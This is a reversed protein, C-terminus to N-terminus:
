EGTRSLLEDIARSLNQRQAPELTPNTQVTERAHELRRRATIVDGQDLALQGAFLLLPPYDPDLALGREYADGAADWEMRQALITGLGAWAIATPHVDIAERFSREAFDVDGRESAAVGIQARLHGSDRGFWRLRDLALEARHLDVAAGEVKRRFGYEAELEAWIAGTVCLAGVGWVLPRGWRRRRREPEADDGGQNRILIRAIRGDRLKWIAGDLIFHHLNVVSAVMLTLGADYPLAGILGPAFILAPLTWAIIGAAMTRGFFGVFSGSGEARRAFYWTIWLYQTAHGVAVWLFTYTTEQIGLPEVGGLVHWHRAVAPAAFWLAQTAVITMTPLLDVLRANRLLVAFGALTVGAYALGVIAFAPARIAESIGLPLFGYAERTLGGPAYNAIPSAGHLALFTLVFCLWFSWKVLRRAQPTVTVGRRHLFMLAIGYNQGTYHWPSWTLYVTIMWSGVLPAYLGWVFCASVLLTCWLAFFVYARRNRRSEYVRLLTAGYHPVSIVLTVLSSMELPVVNRMAPGALSQLVFILAYGIGCGLILDRVPGYLWRSGAPSASSMGPSPLM